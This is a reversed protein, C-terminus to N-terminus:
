AAGSQAVTRALLLAFLVCVPVHDGTEPVDRTGRRGLWEGRVLPEACGAGRAGRLPAAGDSRQIHQERRHPAGHRRGAARRADALSRSDPEM